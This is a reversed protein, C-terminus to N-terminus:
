KCVFNSGSNYVPWQGAMSRHDIPSSSMSWYRFLIGCYIYRCKRFTAELQVMPYRGFVKFIFPFTNKAVSVFLQVYWVCQCLGPDLRLLFWIRSVYENSVLQFQSQSEELRKCSSSSGLGYDFRVRYSSGLNMRPVFVTIEWSSFLFWTWACVLCGVPYKLM